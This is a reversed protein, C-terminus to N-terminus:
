LNQPREWRRKLGNPFILTKGRGQVTLVPAPGVQFGAGEPILHRMGLNERGDQIPDMTINTIVGVLETEAQRQSGAGAALKLAQRLTGGEVLLPLVAEGAEATKKKAARAAKNGGITMHPEPTAREPPYIAMPPGALGVVSQSLGKKVLNVGLPLQTLDRSGVEVIVLLVSM